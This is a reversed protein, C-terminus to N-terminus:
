EEGVPTLTFTGDSNRTISHTKIGNSTVKYWGEIKGPSLSTSTRGGLYTVYEYIGDKDIDFKIIQGRKTTYGATYIVYDVTELAEIRGELEIIKNYLNIQKSDDVNDAAFKLLYDMESETLDGLVFLKKVKMEIEDLKYDGKNIVGVIFNKMGEM